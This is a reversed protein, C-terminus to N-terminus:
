EKEKKTEKEPGYCPCGTIDRKTGNCCQKKLIVACATGDHQTCKDGLM